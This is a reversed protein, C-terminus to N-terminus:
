AIARTSNQVPQQERMGALRGAVFEIQMALKDQADLLLSVADAYGAERRSLRASREELTQSLETLQALLQQLEASLSEENDAGEGEGAAPIPLLVDDEQPADHSLERKREHVAQMLAMAGLRRRYEFEEVLEQENEIRDVLEAASLNQLEDFDFGDDESDLVQTEVPQLEDSAPARRCVLFEFAGIEVRDTEALVSTRTEQGNVKLAPADALAEIQATGREISIRSHVEPVGPGGLRLDCFEASGILFVPGEIPRNPFATRGRRIDLCLETGANTAPTNEPTERSPDFASSNPNRLTM